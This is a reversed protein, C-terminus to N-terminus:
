NSNLYKKDYEQLLKNCEEIEESTPLKEVICVMELMEAVNPCFMKRMKERLYKIIRKIIM